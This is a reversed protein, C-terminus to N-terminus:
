SPISAIGNAIVNITGKKGLIEDAKNVADEISFSPIMQMSEVLSRDAESVLIVTYRSLIRAFVQSQWQDKRTENMNRAEIEKLIDSAKKGSSFTSYFADGGHGDVCSSAMIIVGGPKTFAEATCMGKVAQYINQDLPYGGNSTITFDAKRMSIGALSSLFQVGKRHAADVDGSFAGIIRHETNLVVNVIYRLKAKRAAYIMDEHIPNGDLIGVRAKADKIFAANHNYFVTDEAAIGPLVSKRGGSFGAFFHPEIFGESILLDASFAIRNIKLNGGSPLRGISVLSSEDASDHVVIREQEFVEEGFKERLEDDTSRRHCGTAILITVSADPSSVRIEKLMRPIIQRSPVPRTHDSAIIVINSKGKALESLSPSGIPHSFAYDLIEDEGLSPSFTDLNNEAIVCDRGEELSFSLSTRAYPIKIQEAM